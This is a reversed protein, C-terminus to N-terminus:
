RVSFRSLGASTTIGSERSFKSMISPSATDHRPVRDAQAGMRPPPDVLAARAALPSSGVAQPHPSNRSTNHNPVTTSGTRRTDFPSSSHLRYSPQTAPGNRLEAQDGHPTNIVSSVQGSTSEVITSASGAPAGTDVGRQQQQQAPTIISENSTSQNSLQRSLQLRHRHVPHQPNAWPNQELFQEEAAPQSISSTFANATPVKRAQM